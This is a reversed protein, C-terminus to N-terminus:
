NAKAAFVSQMARVAKNNGGQSRATIRYLHNEFGTAGGGAPGSEHLLGAGPPRETGLDEIIYVPNAALKASGLSGNTMDTQTYTQAGATIWGKGTRFAKANPVNVRPDGPYCPTSGDARCNIFGTNGLTRASWLRTEADRLAADAGFSALQANRTSGVMKEQLLSSSSSSIALLSLLILFILAVLLVAGRNRHVGGLTNLANLRKERHHTM